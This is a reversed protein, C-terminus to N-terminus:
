DGTGFEVQLDEVDLGTLVALGVFRPNVTCMVTIEPDSVSLQDAGLSDKCAALAEERSVTNWGGRFQEFSFRWARGAHPTLVTSALAKFDELKPRSSTDVPFVRDAFRSTFKRTANPALFRRALATPVDGDRQLKLFSVRKCVMGVPLFRRAALAEDTGANRLEALEAELGEAATISTAAEEEPPVEAEVELWLRLDKSGRLADQCSPSEVLFGREGDQYDDARAKKEAPEGGGSGRGGRGGKQAAHRGRKGPM